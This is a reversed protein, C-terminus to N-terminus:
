SVGGNLIRRFVSVHEPKHQDACGTLSDVLERTARVFPTDESQLALPVGQNNAVIMHEDNPIHYIQCDTFMREIDEFALRNAKSVRNLIIKMSMVPVHESRLADYLKKTDAMTTVDFLNAILLVQNSNTLTHMTFDHLFHPTDIIVYRYTRKLLYLINDLFEPSVTDLPVPNVSTVLVDVGSSHKTVYDSITDGDIETDSAALEGITRKPTFNLMAPVDGFQPYLDILAVKRPLRKAIIVALNVAITSKGVGGKASTVSIVKPFRSPDKWELFETSSRRARTEALEEILTHLKEATRPICARAGSRMALEIRDPACVDNMLVTMIDPALASLMECTQLGSIGPLDYSILAVHPASELAIQVAEQGDRALGVIECDGSQIVTDRLSTRLGLNNEALMVKISSM